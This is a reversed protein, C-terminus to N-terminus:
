SAKHFILEEMPEILKENVMIQYFGDKLVDPAIHKAYKKTEPNGNEMFYSHEVEQLMEIDNLGDGFAYADEKKINLFKLIEKVGIGKSIGKESIDYSIFGYQDRIDLEDKLSTQCKDGDEQNNFCAMMLYFDDNENYKDKFINPNIGWTTVFDIFLPDNVDKTAVYDQSEYFYLGNNKLCCEKLLEQKTKSIPYGYIQKGNMEGYAGNTTIFGSPNLDVIFDPLMCRSRGSAIFVFHGNNLLEKIAYKSKNSAEKMGRPVDFLTGDCDLFIIKRNM